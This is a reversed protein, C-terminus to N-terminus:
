DLATEPISPEIEENLDGTTFRWKLFRMRQLEIQTDFYELYPSQDRLLKLARIEDANFDNEALTEETTQATSEDLAETM